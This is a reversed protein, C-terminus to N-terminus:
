LINISMGSNGPNIQDFFLFLQLDFHYQLNKIIYNLTDEFFFLQSDSHLNFQITSFTCFINQLPYQASM